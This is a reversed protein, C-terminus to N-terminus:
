PQDRTTRGEELRIAVADLDELRTETVEILFPEAENQAHLDDVVQVVGHGVNTFVGGLVGVSDQGLVIGVRLAENM